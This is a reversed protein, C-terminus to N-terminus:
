FDRRRFTGSGLLGPAYDAAGLRGAGLRGRRFTTSGNVSGWIWFRISFINEKQVEVITQRFNWGSAVIYNSTVKVIIQKIMFILKHIPKYVTYIFIGKTGHNILGDSYSIRSGRNKILNPSISMKYFGM